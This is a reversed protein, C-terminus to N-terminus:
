ISPYRCVFPKFFTPAKRPGQTAAGIMLNSNDIGNVQINPYANDDYAFIQPDGNPTRGQDDVSWLFGFQRDSIVCNGAINRDDNIGTVVTQEAGPVEVKRCDVYGNVRDVSVFGFVTTSRNPGRVDFRGVIHGHRNVGRVVVAVANWAELRVRVLPKYMEHVFGFQSELNESPTGPPDFKTPSIPVYEGYQGVVTGFNNIGHACNHIVYDGSFVADPVEYLTPVPSENLWVYAHVEHADNKWYGVLDGQDNVGRVSTALAGPVSRTSYAWGPFPAGDHTVGVFGHFTAKDGIPGATFVTGAINSPNPSIGIGLSSIGGLQTSDLEFFEPNAM